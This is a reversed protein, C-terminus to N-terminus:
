QSFHPFSLSTSTRELSQFPVFHGWHPETFSAFFSDTNADLAPPLPLAGSIDQV